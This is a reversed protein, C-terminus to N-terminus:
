TPHQLAGSHIAPYVQSAPGPRAGLVGSSNPATWSPRSTPFPAGVPAFYGM